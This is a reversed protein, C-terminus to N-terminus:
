LSMLLFDYKFYLQFLMYCLSATRKLFVFVFFLQLKRIQFSPLTEIIPGVKPINFNRELNIPFM